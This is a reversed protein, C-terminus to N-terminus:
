GREAPGNTGWIAAAQCLAEAGHGKAHVWKGAPTKEAKGTDSGEAQAERCLSCVAAACREREQMEGAYRGYAFAAMLTYGVAQALEQRKKEFAMPARRITDFLAVGMAAVAPNDAVERGATEGWIRILETGATVMGITNEPLLSPQAVPRQRPANSKVMQSRRKTM